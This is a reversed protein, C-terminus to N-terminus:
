RAARLLPGTLGLAHVYVYVHSLSDWCMCADQNGRGTVTISNCQDMMWACASCAAAHMSSYSRCTESGRAHVYSWPRGAHMCATHISPSCTPVFKYFCQVIVMRRRRRARPRHRTWARCAIDGRSGIRRGTFNLRRRRPSGRNSAALQGGPPRWARRTGGPRRARPVQCGCTCASCVAGGRAPVCRLRGTGSPSPSPSSAYICSCAGRPRARGGSWPRWTPTPGGTRSRCTWGGQMTERQARSYKYGAMAEDRHVTSHVTSEM